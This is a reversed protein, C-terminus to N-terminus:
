WNAALADSKKNYAKLCRRFTKPSMKDDRAKEVTRWVLRLTARDAAGRLQNRLSTKM